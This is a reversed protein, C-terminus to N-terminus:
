EVLEPRFDVLDLSASPRALPEHEDGDFFIGGCCEARDVVIPGM